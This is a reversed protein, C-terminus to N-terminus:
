FAESELYQTTHLRNSRWGLSEPGSGGPMMLANGLMVDKYPNRIGIQQKAVVQKRKSM